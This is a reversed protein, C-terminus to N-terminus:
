AAVDAAAVPRADHLQGFHEMDRNHVHYVRTIAGPLCTATVTVVTKIDAKEALFERLLTRVLSRFHVEPNMGLGFPVSVIMSHPSLQHSFVKGKEFHKCLEAVAADKRALFRATLPATTDHLEVSFMESAVGFEVTRELHLYLGHLPPGDEKREAAVSRPSDGIDESRVHWPDGAAFLRETATTRVSDADSVSGDEDAAADVHERVEQSFEHLVLEAHGPTRYLKELGLEVGTIVCQVHDGEPHAPVYATTGCCPLPVLRKSMHFPRIRCTNNTSLVFKSGVTGSGFTGRPWTNQAHETM